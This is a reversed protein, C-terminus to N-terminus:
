LGPLKAKVVRPGIESAPVRQVLVQSYEEVVDLTILVNRVLEEDYHYVGRFGAFSCTLVQM